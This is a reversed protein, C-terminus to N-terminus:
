SCQSFHNDIRQLLNDMEELVDTNKRGASVEFVTVKM